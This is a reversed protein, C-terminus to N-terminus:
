IFTYFRVSCFIYKSRYDFKYIRIYIKDQVPWRHVFDHFTYREGRKLGDYANTPNYIRRM